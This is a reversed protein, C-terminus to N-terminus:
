EEEVVVEGDVKEGFGHTDDVVEDGVHFALVEAASADANGGRARRNGTGSATM